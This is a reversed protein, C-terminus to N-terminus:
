GVRGRYRDRDLDLWRAGLRPRPDLIESVRDDSMYM